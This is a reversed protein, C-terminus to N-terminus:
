SECCPDKHLDVKQILWRLAVQAASRGHAKGISIVTPDKLVDIGSLGGLPSYASYSINNKQCFEATNDDGGQPAHTSNHAGISHGCQNM